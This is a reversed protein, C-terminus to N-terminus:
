WVVRATATGGLTHSGSAIESDFKAGVSLAPLVRWEVASSALLSDKAAAAGNVVFGSGPLTQFTAALVPDSVWDHAWAIRGRLMVPMGALTSRNDLRLGLESRTDNANRSNFSAAFGGGSVDTESYAPTHFSQVQVAAYPTLGATAFSYRYGAELRGGYSQANFRSTLHDAAFATRDTTMWHNTFALAAAVYANGFRGKGYLGAQLAESQGTGLGQPLGWSLAGGALAFGAVLDPSFRYDMGGAIGYTRAIFDHSGFTSDGLTKNYGGYAAGWSNWRHELMQMPQAKVPMAQDFAFAADPPLIGQREPAFNMPRASFRGDVYPDLMVAMFENMLQFAGHQSVTAVEGSISDLARALGAGTLDFIPLFNSTLPGGNNFFSNLGNALSQQNGNLGGGSGLSSSLNLQVDTTSYYALNASFSSPLNTTVLTGFQGNLNGARLITNHNSLTGSTPFTAEVTAGALTAVGNVTVLPSPTPAVAFTTGASFNLDGTLAVSSGAGVQLKGGNNLSVSAATMAGGQEVDITNNSGLRGITVDVAAFKSNLGTVLISNGTSSADYGLFSNGTVQVQGGDSITLASNTGNSGVRLTGSINWTSGTGDVLVSNNTASPSGGTGGGIRVNKSSVLGGSLIDLENNNSNLGIYLTSGTTSLQSGTGTVTIKNNNSGSQYGVVVDDPGSNAQVSVTVKGGASIILQNGSGYNGITLDPGTVASAPNVNQLVANSGTVTITNNDSPSLLSGYGIVAKTYNLTGGNQVTLQQGGNVDGVTLADVNTTSNVVPASGNDVILDAAYTGIPISLSVFASVVLISRPLSRCATGARLAQRSVGGYLRRDLIILARDPGAPIIM